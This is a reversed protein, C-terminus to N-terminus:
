FDPRSAALWGCMTNPPQKGVIPAVVGSVGGIDVKVTFHLAKRPSGAISFSDEVDQPEIFHSRTSRKRNM